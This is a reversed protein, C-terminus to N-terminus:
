RVLFTITTLIAVIILHALGYILVTAREGLGRKRLRDYLHDRDGLFLRERSLARRVVALGADIVSVGLFACTLPLFWFSGLDNALRIALVILMFGVWHSGSDGMFAKGPPWNFFLFAVLVGILIFALLMGTADGLTRLSFALGLLSIVAVTGAIGDLGDQMNTANMGGFAIFSFTPVLVLASVGMFDGAGVLWLLFGSLISVIIQATFKEWPRYNDPANKWRLDDFLGLLLPLSSILMLVIIEMNGSWVYTACGVLALSFWMAIGGTMPRAATHLKLVDNSPSDELRWRSSWRALLPMM